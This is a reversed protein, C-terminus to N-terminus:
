CGCRSFKGSTSSPCRRMACSTTACTTPKRVATCSCRQSVTDRVNERLGETAAALREAEAPNSATLADLDDRLQAIGLENLIKSSYIGRQTFFRIESLEAAAAANAMAAALANRDQSMLMQALPGLGSPPASAAAGPPAQEGTSEGTEASEGAEQTPPGTIEPQKFFLDFCEGLARKDDTSKALTLLFTDRLIERDTFGIGSVARMADISESPSIRVGAGRAARFFRHLNERM